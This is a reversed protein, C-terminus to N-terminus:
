VWVLGPSGHLPVALVAQTKIARVMVVARSAVLCAALASTLTAGFRIWIPLVMKNHRVILLSSATKLRSLVMQVRVAVGVPTM